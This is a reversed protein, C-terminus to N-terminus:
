AALAEADPLAHFQGILRMRVRDAGNDTWELATRATDFPCVKGDVFRVARQLQTFLEQPTDAAMLQGLRLPSFQRPGRALAIGLKNRGGAVLPQLMLACAVNADPIFYGEARLLQQTQGFVPELMADLLQTARRLRHYGPNRSAKLAAVAGVVIAAATSKQSTTPNSM